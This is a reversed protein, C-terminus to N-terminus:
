KQPHISDFPIMTFIILDQDLVYCVQKDTYIHQITGKHWVKGVKFRIAQGPSLNSLWTDRQAAKIKFAIFIIAAILLIAALWYDSLLTKM